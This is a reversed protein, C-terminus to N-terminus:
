RFRRGPCRLDSYPLRGLGTLRSTAAPRAARRAVGVEGGDGTSRGRCPRRLRRQVSSSLVRRGERRGGLASRAAPQARPSGGSKQCEGRDAASPMATAGGGRSEAPGWRPPSPTATAASSTAARRTASATRRAGRPPPWPASRRSPRPTAPPSSPAARPSRAAQARRPRRQVGRGQRLDEFGCLVVLLAAPNLVGGLALAARGGRRPIQALREVRFARARAAGRRPAARGPLNAPVVSRSALRRAPRPRSRCRRRPWSAPTAPRSPPVAPLLPLEM